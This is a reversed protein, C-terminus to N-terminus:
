SNIYVTKDFDLIANTDNSSRLNSLKTIQATLDDRQTALDTPIVAGAETVCKIKKAIELLQNGLIELVDQIDQIKAPLHNLEEKDIYTKTLSTFQNNAEIEKKMTHILSRAFYLENQLKIVDKELITVRGLLYTRTETNSTV